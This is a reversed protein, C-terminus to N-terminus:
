KALIEHLAPDLTPYKFSFGASIIKAASVNQSAFLLEHMEGLVLKMAFKPVNPMFLPKSLIGAIARTLTENTVPNPAVANYIGDLNNEVAFLYLSVLDDLHIWSQIQNGSGFASGVNLRIPKAMQPLAGGKESLVLGTRLKCVKIGLLRFKDVSQEWKEVVHGLFGPDKQLDNESYVNTLSDPYIGIASASVIQTVQHPNKKLVNFLLNASFIRSEIIEQKYAATWRKAITAGALHIIADVGILAGEDIQCQQPNWYFGSYHESNKIKEKSTTLYNVSIGHRLLLPVLASGILGTAGTILIKM